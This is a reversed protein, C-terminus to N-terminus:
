SFKNEVCVRDKVKELIGDGGQAKDLARRVDLDLKKQEALLADLTSYGLDQLREM